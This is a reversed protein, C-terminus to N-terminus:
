DTTPDASLKKIVEQITAFIDTGSETLLGSVMRSQDQSYQVMHHMPRM